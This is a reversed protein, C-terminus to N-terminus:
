LPQEEKTSGSSVGEWLHGPHQAQNPLQAHGGQHPHARHGHHWRRSRSPEHGYGRALVGISLEAQVVAEPPAQHPAVAHERQDGPDGDGAASTHRPPGLTNLLEQAPCGAHSRHQQPQYDRPVEEQAGRRPQVGSSRASEVNSLM